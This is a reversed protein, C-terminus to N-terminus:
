SLIMGNCLTIYKKEQEEGIIRGVFRSPVYLTENEEDSRRNSNFNSRNGRPPGDNQFNGFNNRNPRNDNQRFNSRTVTRSYHGRENYQNQSYNGDSPPMYQVPGDDWNEESM